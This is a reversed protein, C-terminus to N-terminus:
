AAQGDPIGQETVQVEPPQAPPTSQVLAVLQEMVHPKPLVQPAIKQPPVFQVTSQLPWPEQALAIVHLAVPAHVTSQVALPVHVPPTWHM